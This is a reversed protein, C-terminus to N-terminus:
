TMLGAIFEQMSGPLQELDNPTDIDAIEALEKWSLAASVLKQRTQLLVMESGWSIEEFVVPASKNLGILVYGGDTAPGIICDQDQQLAGFAEELYTHSLSPTDCGILIAISDSALVEEFANNMRQGLDHGTQQRIEGNFLGFDEHDSDGEIYLYRKCDTVQNVLGIQRALLLRYLSYSGKEGLAPILRTKVHGPVPERAFLILARDAM